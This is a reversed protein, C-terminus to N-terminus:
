WLRLRTATGGARHGCLASADPVDGGPDHVHVRGTTFIITIILIGLNDKHVFRGM